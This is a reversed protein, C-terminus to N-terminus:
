DIPVSMECGDVFQGKRGFTENGLKIKLPERSPMLLVLDVRSLGGNARRASGMFNFLRFCVKVLARAAKREDTGEEVVKLSEMLSFVCGWGELGGQELTEFIFDEIMRRAEGGVVVMIVQGSKAVLLCEETPALEEAASEGLFPGRDLLLEKESELYVPM